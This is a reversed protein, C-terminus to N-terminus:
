WRMLRVSVTDQPVKSYLKATATQYGTKKLELKLTVFGLVSMKTPTTGASRGDIFITAGSPQSTVTVVHTPRSLTVEVNAPKGAALTVLKSTSAYRAHSIDLRHKDCTTAVTIPSPGMNNGDLQVISGAPTTNVVVNCPGSGVVPPGDGSPREGHEEPPDTDDEPKSEAGPPTTAQAVTPHAPKPPTAPMTAANTAPRPTPKKPNGGDSSSSTVMVVLVVAAVLAGVGGVLWWPPLPRKNPTAVLREGQATEITPPAVAPAGAALSEVVSADRPDSFPPPSTLSPVSERKGLPESVAIDGVGLVDPVSPRDPPVPLPTIEAGSPRVPPVSVPTITRARVDDGAPSPTPARSIAPRPAFAPPPPVVDEVLLGTEDDVPFFNGTEEYLTCDVYGELSEDTLNMLPNAPLVFDSGPTRTEDPPPTPTRPLGLNPRSDRLNQKADRADTRPDRVETKPDRIETKSDRSDLKADRGLKTDPGLKADRGLKTDPGLKADHGGHKTDRSDLKADRGDLKADRSVDRIDTKEEIVDTPEPTVPEPIADETETEPRPQKLEIRPLVPKAPATDSTASKTAISPAGAASKAADTAAGKAAGTAPSKAPISAPPAIAPIAGLKPKVAVVLPSAPPTPPVAGALPKTAVAPFPQPPTGTNTARSLSPPPKGASRTVLLREFVAMSNATLRKIGLRVGPTKFPNNTDTWAQQVVCLGRLVPTGDALQVSFSTEIGAPRTNLTSVFFSDEDVFRHFMQIFQEVSTCRTAICMGKTKATEQKTM